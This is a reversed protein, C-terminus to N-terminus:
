QTPHGSEGVVGRTVVERQDRSDVPVDLARHFAVESEHLRWRTELGGHISHSLNPRSESISTM